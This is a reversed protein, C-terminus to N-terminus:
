TNVYRFFSKLDINQSFLLTYCNYSRSITLSAQMIHNKINKGIESDVFINGLLLTEYFRIALSDMFEMRTANGLITIHHKELLYLKDVEFNGNRGIFGSKSLYPTASIYYKGEEKILLATDDTIAEYKSKLAINVLTTKGAGNEGLFVHAKNEVIIAACHIFLSRRNTIFPMVAFRQIADWFYNEPIGNFVINTNQNVKVRSVTKNNEWTVDIDIGEKSIFQVNDKSRWEISDEQQNQSWNNFTWEEIYCTHDISFDDKGQTSNELVHSYWNLAKQYIEETYRHFVVKIRYPGLKYIFM